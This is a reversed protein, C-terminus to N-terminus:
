PKQVRSPRSSRGMIMGLMKLLLFLQECRHQELLPFTDTGGCLFPPWNINQSVDLKQNWTWFGKVVLRLMLRRMRQRRNKSVSQLRLIVAKFLSSQLKSCIKSKEHGDRSTKAHFIKWKINWYEYFQTHKCAIHMERESDTFKQMPHTRVSSVQLEIQLWQGQYEMQNPTSRCVPISATHSPQWLIKISGEPAQQRCPYATQMSINDAHTYQRWPRAAQMHISICPHISGAHTHQYM